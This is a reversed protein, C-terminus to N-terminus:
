SGGDQGKIQAGETTKSGVIITPSEGFMTDNILGPPAGLILWTTKDIFIMGHDQDEIRHLDHFALIKM